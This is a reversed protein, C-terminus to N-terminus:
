CAKRKIRRAGVLETLLREYGRATHSIRFEREVRRRGNKGLQARLPADDALRALREAIAEADGVPVIFGHEGDSVVDRISGCDTAVVPLAAAMSEIVVIPVGEHVSSLCSVDLGPLLQDVDRRIGTFLTRDAVDLRSALLMLEEEREGGGVVVLRARPHTPVLRAFAEFLVHHAKQATLRAVIGIAFEDPELGLEERAQKRDATQPVPPLVIGNPIVTERVSSWITTGVGEERHLYDGQARTLLVLADSLCLTAVAWRPLVRRGVSTLDMDHAAVVNVTSGATRAAM